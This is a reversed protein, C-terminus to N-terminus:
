ERLWISGDVPQWNAQDRELGYKTLTNGRDSLKLHTGPLKHYRM